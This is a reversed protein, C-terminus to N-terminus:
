KGNTKMDKAMQRIKKSPFYIQFGLNLDLYSSTVASGFGIIGQYKLLTELAVNPSIFYAYGPGFGLGLGNTSSGGSPNSGEIGVNAEFFWRGHELVNVNKDAIYYRGLAGVGYNVSTGAGKATTLQLNVYAGLALNDKIFWLAKPDITMSFTNPSNLQINFDALDAGVMVDGKQLQAKASFTAVCLFLGLMLLTKRM